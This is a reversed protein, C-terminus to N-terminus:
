NVKFFLYRRFLVYINWNNYKSHVINQVSSRINMRNIKCEPECWIINRRNLVNRVVDCIYTTLFCICIRWSPRRSKLECYIESLCDDSMQISVFNVKKWVFLVVNCGNIKVYGFFVQVSRKWWAILYKMAKKVTRACDRKDLSGNRNWTDTGDVPWNAKSKIHPSHPADRQLAM